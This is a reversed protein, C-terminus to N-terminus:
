SVFTGEDAGVNHFLPPRKDIDAARAYHPPATYPTRDVPNMM